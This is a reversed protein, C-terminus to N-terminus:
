RENEEHYSVKSMTVDRNVARRFSRRPFLFLISTM